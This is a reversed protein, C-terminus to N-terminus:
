MIACRCGGKSGSDPPPALPRAQQQAVLPGGVSAEYREAVRKVVDGFDMEKIQAVHALVLRFRGYGLNAGDSRRAVCYIVDLGRMSPKGDALLGSGKLLRMMTGSTMADKVAGTQASVSHMFTNRLMREFPLKAPMEPPLPAGAGADQAAQRLEMALVLTNDLHIGTPGPPNSTIVEYLFGGAFSADIGDFVGADGLTLYLGRATVGAAGGVTGHEAFANAVALDDVELSVQPSAHVADAADPASAEPPVAQEDSDAFHVEIAGLVADPTAFGVAPGIAALATAFAELDGGDAGPEAAAAMAIAAAGAGPTGAEVWGCAECVLAFGGPTVVCPEGSGTADFARRVADSARLEPTPAMAAAEQGRASELEAVALAQSKATAVDVPERAANSQALVSAVEGACGLGVQRSLAGAEVLVLGIDDAGLVPSAGARKAFAKEVANELASRAQEALDHEAEREKEARQKQQKARQPQEAGRAAKSESLTRSEPSKVGPSPQRLKSPKTAFPSKRQAALRAEAPTGKPSAKAKARASSPVPSPTAPALNLVADVVRLMAVDRAQAIDLLAVLFGAWGLRRTAGRQRPTRPSLPGDTSPMAEARSTELAAKRSRAHIITLGDYTPLSCTKGEGGCLGADTCLRVFQALSLARAKEAPSRPSGLGPTSAVQAAAATDFVAKLRGHGKYTSPPVMPAGADGAGSGPQRFQPLARASTVSGVLAAFDDLSLAAHASAGARKSVERCLFAGIASSETNALLGLDGIAFPVDATSLLGDRAFREFILSITVAAGGTGSAAAAKVPSAAIDAEVGKSAAIIRVAVEEFGGAVNGGETAVLASAECFAPFDLTRRGPTACRAFAVIRPDARGSAPELGLRASACCDLFQAITIRPPASRASRKSEPTRVGSNAAAVVQAAKAKVAFSVFAAHLGEPVTEPVRMPKPPSPAGKSERALKRRTAKILQSIQDFGVCCTGPGARVSLSRALEHAASDAAVQCAANDFVRIQALLMVAEDRTLLGTDKADLARFVDAPTLAGSRGGAPATFPRGGSAIHSPVDKSEGRGLAAPSQNWVPAAWRAERRRRMEEEHLRDNEAVIGAQAGHEAHAMAAAVAQPGTSPKEAGGARGTDRKAKYTNITARAASRLQHALDELHMGKMEAIRSLVGLFQDFTLEDRESKASAFLVALGTESLRRDVLSGSVCLREFAEFPLRLASMPTIAEAADDAAIAVARFVDRVKRQLARMQTTTADTRPSSAGAIAKYQVSAYMSCFEEFTYRRDVADAVGAPAVGSLAADFARASRAAGGLHSGADLDTLAFLLEARSVTGDPRAYRQFAAALPGAAAAAARPSVLATGHPLHEAMESSFTGDHTPAGAPAGGTAPRAAM